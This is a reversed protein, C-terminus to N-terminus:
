SVSENFNAERTLSLTTGNFEATLDFELTNDGSPSIEIIADGGGSLNEITGTESENEELTVGDFGFQEEGENSDNIDVEATDGANTNEITLDLSSIEESSDNRFQVFQNGDFTGDLEENFDGDSNEDVGIRLAADTDDAVAVNVGRDASLQTFGLTETAFFAAGVSMLGLASRRTTTRWRGDSDTM